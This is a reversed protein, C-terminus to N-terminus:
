FIHSLLLLSQHVDSVFNGVDGSRSDLDERTDVHVGNRTDLLTIRILLRELQVSFLDETSNININFFLAHM